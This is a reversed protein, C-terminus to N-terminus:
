TAWSIVINTSLSNLSTILTFHLWPPPGYDLWVPTWRLLPFKSVCPCILPAHVCLIMMHCSLFSTMQLDFLSVESSIVKVKIKQGKSHHSFSNRNNLGGLRHYQKITARSFYFHSNSLRAWSKTISHVTAWWAGRDMPNELCSYQLPKDNGEEPSRGSGPTSGLDRASCASEQGVLGDPFDM